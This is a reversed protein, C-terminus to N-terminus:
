ADLAKVLADGADHATWGEARGRAALGAVAVQDRNAAAWRLKEVLADVDRAPLLWGDTGDTICEPGGGCFTTIVPTACCMAEQIVLGFGDGLTPFVLLDATTYHAELEARPLAPTHRFGGAYGDLFSKGLRLSGVLHLEAGPIAARKWAELLYPTGKPIDHAGVSLVRFPGAPRRAKPRFLDVPFGYPIVVVPARLDLRELTSKVYSSAVSVTTALALEADKRRDKWAPERHPPRDIADPWRQMEDRWLDKTAQHHRTPLDWVRAIGLREARRFTRLAGDEYAYVASTSSPWRAIAM